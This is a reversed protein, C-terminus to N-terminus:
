NIAVRRKRASELKMSVNTTVYRGECGLVVYMSMVIWNGMRRLIVLEWLVWVFICCM